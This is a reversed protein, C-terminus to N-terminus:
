ITVAGRGARHMFGPMRLVQAVREKAGEIRGRWRVAYGRYRYTSGSVTRFPIEEFDRDEQSIVFTVLFEVKEKVVFNINSANLGNLVYLADNYRGDKIMKRARNFDATMDRASQYFVPVTERKVSRALDYETGSITVMDITENDAAPKGGRPLIFRLLGSGPLFWGAAAAVLLVAAVVAIRVALRRAGARDREIRIGRRGLTGVFVKRHAKKKLSRSPRPVSVFDSLLADKQFAAFDGNGGM